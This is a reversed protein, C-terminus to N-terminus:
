KSIKELMLREAYERIEAAQGAVLLPLAAEVVAVIAEKGAFRLESYAPTDLNKYVYRPDNLIEFLSGVIIKIAYDLQPSYYPAQM